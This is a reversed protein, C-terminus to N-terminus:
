VEVSPPIEFWCFVVLLKCRFASVVVVVVFHDCGLAHNHLPTTRTGNIIRHSVSTFAAMTLIVSLFM